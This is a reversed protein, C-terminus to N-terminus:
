VVVVVVVVQFEKSGDLKREAIEALVFSNEVKLL